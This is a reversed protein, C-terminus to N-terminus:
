EFVLHCWGTLGQSEDLQLEGGLKEVNKNNSM